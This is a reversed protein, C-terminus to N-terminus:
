KKIMTPNKENPNASSLSVVLFLLSPKNYLLNEPEGFKSAQPMEKKVSNRARRTYFFIVWNCIKKWQKETIKTCALEFACLLYNVKPTKFWTAITFGGAWKGCGSCGWRWEGWWLCGMLCVQSSQKTRSSNNLHLIKNELLLKRTFLGSFSWLKVQELTEFRV